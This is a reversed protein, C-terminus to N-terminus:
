QAQDHQRAEIAALLVKAKETQKDIVNLHVAAWERTTRLYAAYGDDERVLAMLKDADIEGFASLGTEYGRVVGQNRIERLMAQTTWLEDWNAYYQQIQRSTDRDRILKLDGSAILAEFGTRNGYVVRVLNVRGILHPHDKETVPTGGSADFEGTSVVIQKPLTEGRAEHLIFEVTGIRAKASKRVWEFGTIDTRLDEAIEELYRTEASRNALDENWNSVQIGVFVGIVVIVFDIGIATWEQHKFHKIVRRLLM